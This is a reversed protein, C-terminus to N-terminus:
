MCTCTCVQDHKSTNMIKLQLDDPSGDCNKMAWYLHVKTSKGLSPM